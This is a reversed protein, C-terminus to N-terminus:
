KSPRLSDSAQAQAQAREPRGRMSPPRRLARVLAQQPAWVALLAPLRVSARLTRESPLFPQRWPVWHLSQACTRGYPSDCTPEDIPGCTRWYVPGCPNESTPWWLWQSLGYQSAAHWFACPQWTVGIAM